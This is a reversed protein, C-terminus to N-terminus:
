HILKIMSVGPHSLPQSNGKAWPMVGPDQSLAGCQAGPLSGAEGETDSDRERERESYIFDKFVFIQDNIHVITPM